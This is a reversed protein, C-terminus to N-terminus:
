KRTAHLHLGVRVPWIAVHQRRWRAQAIVIAAAAGKVGLGAGFILAPALLVNIINSSLTAVLPTRTDQLGRYVGQSCCAPNICGAHAHRAHPLVCRRALQMHYHLSRAHM